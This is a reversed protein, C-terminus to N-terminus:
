KFFFVIVSITINLFTFLMFKTNLDITHKYFKNRLEIEYLNSENNIEETLETKISVVYKKLNDINNKIDNIDVDINELDEKLNDFKRNTNQIDGKLYDINHKNIKYNRELKHVINKFSAINNNFTPIIEKIDNIIIEEESM